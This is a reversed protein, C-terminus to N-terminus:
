NWHFGLRPALLRVVQQSRVSRGDAASGAAVNTNAVRGYGPHMQFQCPPRFGQNEGMETWHIWGEHVPRRDSFRARQTIAVYDLECVPNRKSDLEELAAVLRGRLNASEVHAPHVCNQGGVHEAIGAQYLLVVERCGALKLTAHLYGPVTDLPHISANELNDAVFDHRKEVARAGRHFRSDSHLRVNRAQLLASGGARRISNRTPILEPSKSTVGAPAMIPSAMLMVARTWFM